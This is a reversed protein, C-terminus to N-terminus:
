QGKVTDKEGLRQQEAWQSDSTLTCDRLDWDMDRVFSEESAGGGERSAKKSGTEGDGQSAVLTAPARLRVADKIEFSFSGAPSATMAYSLRNQPMGSSASSFHSRLQSDDVHLSPVSLDYTGERPSNVPLTSEVIGDTEICIAGDDEEGQVARTKRLASRISSGASSLPRRLTGTSPRHRIVLKSGQRTMEINGGGGSKASQPRAPSSKQRLKSDPTGFCETSSATSSSFSRVTEGPSTKPRPQTQPQQQRDTWTLRKPPTTDAHMALSDRQSTTPGFYSSAGSPPEQVEAISDLSRQHSLVAKPPFPVSLYSSTRIAELSVSHFGSNQVKPEVDSRSTASLMTSIARDFPGARSPSAESVLYDSSGTKDQSAEVHKHGDTSVTRLGDISALRQSKKRMKLLSSKGCFRLSLAHRYRKFLYSLVGLLVVTAVIGAAMGVTSSMPDGGGDQLGVNSGTALGSSRQTDNYLASPEASSAPENPNADGYNIQPISSAVTDSHDSDPKANAPLTTNPRYPIARSSDDLTSDDRKWLSPRFAVQPARGSPEQLKERPPLLKAIRCPDYAGYKRRDAALIQRYSLKDAEQLPM